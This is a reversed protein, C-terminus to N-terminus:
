EAHRWGVWTLRSGGRRSVVTREVRALVDSVLQGAQPRPCMSAMSTRARGALDRQIQSVEYRDRCGLGSRDAPEAGRVPRAGSTGREGVGARCRGCCHIRRTRPRQWHYPRDSVGGGQGAAVQKGAWTVARGLALRRCDFGM